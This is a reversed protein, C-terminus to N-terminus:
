EVVKIKGGCYPCYKWLSRMMESLNLDCQPHIIVDDERDWKWECEQPEKASEEDLIKNIQSHISPTTMIGELRNRIKEILESM